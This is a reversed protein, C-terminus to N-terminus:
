KPVVAAPDIELWTAEARALLEGDASFLASSTFAKRGDLSRLQGVVVCPQGLEPVGVVSATMRGLVMPRGSLNTAWGGPCDLAAWVFPSALGGDSALSQDPTWAAAVRGSGISGPQLRMGDGAARDLGCVFCTPFPHDRLGAYRAAADVATPFDVPEPVESTLVGPKAQAILTEGNRLLLGDDDASFIELRVDLPPPSRLTVEVAGMDALFGALRGSVYGGNGSRPPGCFRRDVVFAGSGLSM